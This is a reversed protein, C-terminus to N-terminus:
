ALAQVQRVEAPVGTQARHPSTPLTRDLLVLIGIVAAASHDHGAHRRHAVTSANRNLIFLRHREAGPDDLTQHDAMRMVARHALLPALAMQLIHSQHGAMVIATIVALLHSMVILVQPGEDIVLHIAADGAIATHTKVVVICTASVKRRLCTMMMHVEASIFVPHQLVLEAAVQHLHAGCPHEGVLYEALLIHTLPVQLGRRRNAGAARCATISRRPLPLPTQPADDIAIVM